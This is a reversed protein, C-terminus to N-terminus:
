LPPVVRGGHVADPPHMPGHGNPATAATAATTNSAMAPKAGPQLFCDSDSIMTSMSAFSLLPAPTLATSILILPGAGEVSSTTM